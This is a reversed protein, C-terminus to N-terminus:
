SGRRKISDSLQAIDSPLAPVESLKSAFDDLATDGEGLVYDYRASFLTETEYSTGDDLTGGSTDHTIHLDISDDSDLQEVEDVAAGIDSWSVDRLVISYSHTPM